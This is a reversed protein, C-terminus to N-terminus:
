VGTGEPGTKTGGAGSINGPRRQKRGNFGTKKRDAMSGPSKGTRNEQRRGGSVIGYGSYFKNFFLTKKILFKDLFLITM